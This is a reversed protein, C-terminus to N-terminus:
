QGEGILEFYKKKIEEKTEDKIEKKLSKQLKNKKLVENLCDENKCIYVGRGNMKGTDDLKVEEDPTKVIRILEKKPYKEHCGVCLRTPTKKKKKTM